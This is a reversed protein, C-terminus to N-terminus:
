ALVLMKELEDPTVAPSFLFGQIKICGIDKLFELQDQSEVGEAIIDLNLDQALSVISRVVSGGNKDILMCDIFSKDLKLSTIPLQRLYSLASYGTGFDDLSTTMDLLKLQQLISITAEVNQMFTTETIEINLMRLDVKTKAIVKLIMPILNRRKFQQMSFNVSIKLDKANTNRWAVSQMCAAYFVWEDLALIAGSKEAIPIFEVPSIRGLEPHNWRILAEVGIIKHTVADVQPQYHLVFDGNELSKVIDNQIRMRRIMQENMDPNYILHHGKNIIKSEHCAIGVTRMLNESDIAHDPYISVGINMNLALKKGNIQFPSHLMSIISKIKDDSYTEDSFGEILVAFEDGGVRAIASGHFHRVVRQGFEYLLIDGINSGYLNNIDGFDNIDILMIAFPKNSKIQTDIDRLFAKRNLLKTPADIYEARQSARAALKMYIYWLSVCVIILVLLTISIIEDKGQGIQISYCYFCFLISGIVILIHKNAM